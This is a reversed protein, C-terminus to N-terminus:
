RTRRSSFTITRSISLVDSPVVEGTFFIKMISLTLSVSNALHSNHLQVRIRDVIRPIASAALFIASWQYLVHVQLLDSSISPSRLVQLYSDLWVQTHRSRLLNCRVVPCLLTIM